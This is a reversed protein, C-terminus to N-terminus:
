LADELADKLSRATKFAPEGDDRLALDIVEALRPSMSPKRERIPVPDTELVVLWLDEGKPFRRPFKGTLMNYLSAAM